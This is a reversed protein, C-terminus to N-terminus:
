THKVSVAFTEIYKRTIQIDNTCKNWAKQKWCNEKYNRHASKKKM